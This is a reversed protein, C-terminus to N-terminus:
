ARYQTRSIQEKLKLKERKLESVRTSDPIPRHMEAAIKGDIQAHRANLADLHANAM